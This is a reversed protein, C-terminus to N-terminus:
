KSFYRFFSDISLDDLIMGENDGKELIDIIQHADSNKLVIQHKKNNEIHRYEVGDLPYKDIYNIGSRYDKDIHAYILVHEFDKLIHLLDKISLNLPDILLYPYENIVEDYINVIEQNGMTEHDFSNKQNYTELIKDFSIADEITKFYCLVDFDEKVTIEVGPIFLMDYSQSLEYCISLQKTSNHDTIAIIDLGKLSAMNFINNPTMLVDACPSLVSHIHIDYSYKM